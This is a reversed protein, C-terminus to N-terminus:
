EVLGSTALNPSLWLASRFATDFSSLSEIVISTRIEKIRLEEPRAAARKWNEAWEKIRDAAKEM